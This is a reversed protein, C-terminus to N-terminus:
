TVWEVGSSKKKEEEEAANNNRRRKEGVMGKRKKIEKKTQSVGRMNLQKDLSLSSMMTGSSKSKYLPLKPRFGTISLFFKGHYSVRM